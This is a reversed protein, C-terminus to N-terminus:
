NRLKTNFCKEVNSIINSHISTIDSDLLTKDKDRYSLRFTYSIHDDEFKNDEFFDLNIEKTIELNCLIFKALKLVFNRKGLGKPGGIIITNIKKTCIIAFIEKQLKQSLFYKQNILSNIM